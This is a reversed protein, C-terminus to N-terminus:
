IWVSLKMVTGTVVILFIILQTSSLKSKLLTSLNKLSQKLNVRAELSQGNVLVHDRVSLCVSLRAWFSLLDCFCCDGIKKFCLRGTWKHQYATLSYLLTTVPYIPKVCNDEIKNNQLKLKSKWFNYNLPSFMFSLNGMNTCVTICYVYTYEESFHCSCFQFDLQM